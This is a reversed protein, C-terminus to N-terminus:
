GDMIAFQAVVQFKALIAFQGLLPGTPQTSNPPAPVPVNVRYGQPGDNMQLAPIGLRAIGLSGGSYHDQHGMSPPTYPIGSLFAIKEQLTMNGVLRGAREWPGPGDGVAAAAAAFATAPALLWRM